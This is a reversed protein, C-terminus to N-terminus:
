KYIPIPIGMPIISMSVQDHSEGLSTISVMNVRFVISCLRRERDNLKQYIGFLPCIDNVYKM